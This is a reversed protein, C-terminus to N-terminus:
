FSHVIPPSDEFDSTLPPLVFDASGIFATKTAFTHIRTTKLNEYNQFTMTKKDNYLNYLDISLSYNCVSKSM